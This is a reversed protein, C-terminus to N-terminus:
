IEDVPFMPRLILKFPLIATDQLTAGDTLSMVYFKAKEKFDPFIYGQKVVTVDYDSWEIGVHKLQNAVHIPMNTNTVLIDINTGEVRVLVGKGKICDVEDGAFKCIDGFSLVKVVLDVPASLADHGTGLTLNVTDGVNAELLVDVAKADSIPAFLFSTDKDELALVQRLVFTNWGTAGATMNDGSDTLVAPKEAAMTMELAKDPKATVGTYHFEHRKDWVYQALEDAKEKAYAQDAETAPVVV